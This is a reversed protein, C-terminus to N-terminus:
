LSSVRKRVAFGNADMKQLQIKQKLKESGSELGPKQSARVGLRHIMEEQLIAVTADVCHTFLWIFSKM